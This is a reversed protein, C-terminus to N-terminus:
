GKQKTQNIVKGQSVQTPATSPRRALPLGAPEPQWVRAVGTSQGASEGMREDKGMCMGMSMGMGMSMSMSMSKSMSMGMGMGMGMGMSMGHEHEHVHADMGMCM